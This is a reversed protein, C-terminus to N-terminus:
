SPSETASSVELILPSSCITSIPGSPPILSSRLTGFRLACSFGSLMVARVQCERRRSRVGV